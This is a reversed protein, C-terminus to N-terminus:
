LQDMMERVSRGAELELNYVLVGRGIKTDIFKM